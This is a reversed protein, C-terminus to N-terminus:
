STWFIPPLSIIKRQTEDSKAYTEQNNHNNIIEANPRVILIKNHNKHTPNVNNNEKKNKQSIGEFFFIKRV